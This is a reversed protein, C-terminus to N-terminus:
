RSLSSISFVALTAAPNAGIEGNGIGGPTLSPKAIKTIFFCNVQFNRFGFSIGLTENKGPSLLASVTIGTKPFFLVRM